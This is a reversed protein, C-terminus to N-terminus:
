ISPFANHAHLPQNFARRRPREVHSATHLTEGDRSIIEKPPQLSYPPVTNHLTTSAGSYHQLLIRSPLRVWDLLAQSECARRSEADSAGLCNRIQDVVEM